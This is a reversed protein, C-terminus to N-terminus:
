LLVAHLTHGSRGQSRYVALVDSRTLRRVEEIIADRAVEHIAAEEPDPHRAELTDLYRLLERLRTDDNGSM